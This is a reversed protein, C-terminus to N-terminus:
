SSKGAAEFVAEGCFLAGSSVSVSAHVALPKTAAAATAKFYVMLNKFPSPSALDRHSWLTFIQPNPSVVDNKLFPSFNLWTHVRGHRLLSPSQEQPQLRHFADNVLM